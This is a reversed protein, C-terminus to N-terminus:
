RDAKTMFVGNLFGISWPFLGLLLICVASPNKLVTLPQLRLFILVTRVWKVFPIFPILLVTKLRSQAIASGELPLIRLMSSTILGVNKQHQFFSGIQTRHNHAVQIQPNFFIKGGIRYLRYNFDLDEQPYFNPNFGGLEELYKRKYSINCTPIHSVEKEKQQPIFERFEAMYGAWAIKSSPDNGNVVSGGVAAYDSTEHQTVMKEIWNKNAICDSDIFLIIDGNSEKLGINRATGPDTKESLHIYNIGPFKSRVIQPTNDDSSDVLIIEYPSKYSQNKLASLVPEIM